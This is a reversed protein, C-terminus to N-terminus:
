TSAFRLCPVALTAYPARPDLARVFDFILSRSHLDLLDFRLRSSINLFTAVGVTYLDLLPTTSAPKWYTSAFKLFLADCSASM